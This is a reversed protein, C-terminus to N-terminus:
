PRARAMQVGCGLVALCGALAVMPAIFPGAILTLVGVAYVYGVPRM